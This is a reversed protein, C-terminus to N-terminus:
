RQFPVPNAFTTSSAFHARVLAESESVTMPVREATLGARHAAEGIVAAASWGARRRDRVGTAGDSKSLKRSASQMVLPHHAFRPPRPRGILRALRIQRGTSDLLDRGRIVLDIGQQDDDVVVAFQYTWQRLRDRIVVDGCQDAPSQVQPGCWLDDFTEAGADVRVRWAVDGDLPLRRDRCTGPYPREGDASAAGTHAAIDQRSCACAYVLGRDILSRAAADYRALRDSQRSECVGARFASTPFLDPAFGLWDLDDLLAREYEPRSRQRDHDEIRLLV